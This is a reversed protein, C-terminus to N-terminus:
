RSGRPSGGRTRRPRCSRCRSSPESRAGARGGRDRFRPRRRAGASSDRSTRRSRRPRRPSVSCQRSGPVRTCRQHIVRDIGRFGRNVSPPGAHQDGGGAECPAEREEPADHAGNGRSRLAGLVDVQLGHGLVVADRRVLNPNQVAPAARHALQGHDQMEGRPAPNRRVGDHREAVRTPAPHLDRPAPLQM